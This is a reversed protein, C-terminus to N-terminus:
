DAGAPHASRLRAALLCTSALAHRKQRPSCEEFSMSHASYRLQAIWYPRPALPPELGAEIALRGALGRLIAIAAHAKAVAVDAALEAPLPPLTRSLDGHAILIREWAAARALAGDDSLPVLILKLDNELKAVDRWAHGVRTWFYDILWTNGNEDLLVNALNLDGHVMCCPVEEPETSGAAPLGSYFLAPHPWEGALGEIELVGRGAVSRSLSAVVELTRETYEPRYSYEDLLRVRDLFAGQYLRSLVRRVVNEVLGRATEATVAEAFAQQLTTVEGGHMTAFQYQIAGLSELDIYDVLRPSAAGLMREVSEVAVRERGIKAHTDIKVVFPVESMGRRDVSSSRFVRSGSFGGSLPELRVERCDRFLHGVLRREEDALAVGVPLHVAPAHRGRGPPPGAWPRLGLWALFEPISDLVTVGLSSALHELAARHHARSASATLASAVAIESLGLRTMLEYALYRVKFDTWVGVIGVRVDSCGAVVERITAELATGVFDSLVASDVIRGRAAIKSLPAVFEAGPTGRVCHAGFHDLHGRTAPDEQDHWDRIHIAAHDATLGDTWAALFRALPGERGWASEPDGLLRRSEARGIHLASPLPAGPSVPAVFDNQLCQTFLLTKV